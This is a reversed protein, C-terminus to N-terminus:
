KRMAAILSEMHDLYTKLARSGKEMTERIFRLNGEVHRDLPLVPAVPKRLPQSRM